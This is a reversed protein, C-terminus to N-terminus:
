SVPAVMLPFELKKIANVLVNEITPKHSTIIQRTYKKAERATTDGICFVWSNGLANEATYSKVASPSFFLVGEFQQNFKQFVLCTKYVEIEKCVIKKKALIKPLEERKYNGCIFLFTDKKRNKAIFRALDAANKMMKIVKLGNEELLKKTKEGVCFAYYHSRNVGQTQQLFAKVANKSTFIYYQYEPPITVKLFEITLANYEEVKLGSNYLLEKQSPLLIKTSLVTKM